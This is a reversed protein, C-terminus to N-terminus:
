GGSGSRGRGSGGGGGGREDLLRSFHPKGGPCTVTVTVESSDSKFKVSASLAPGPSSDDISYGGAPISSTISAQSGRCSANVTNGLFAQVGTQPAPVARGTKSPHPSASHNGSPSTTGTPRPSGAPSTHTVALSNRVDAESLPKSSGPGFTGGGILQLAQTAGFVAAVLAAALVVAVLAVRKNMGGSQRTAPLAM